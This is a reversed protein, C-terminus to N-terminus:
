DMFIIIIYKQKKDLASTIKKFFKEHNSWEDGPSEWFATKLFM